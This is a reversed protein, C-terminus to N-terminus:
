SATGEDDDDDDDDDHDDNRNDYNNGTIAPSPRYITWWEVVHDYRRRLM